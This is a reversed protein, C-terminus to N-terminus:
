ANPIEESQIGQPSTYTIKTIGAEQLATWCAVCPRCSALRGRRDYRGVFVECGTLDYDKSRVLAMMEAHGRHAPAIRGVKNNYKYQMPHSTDVNFGSSVIFNGDVIVAGIKVRRYPSKLSERLATTM